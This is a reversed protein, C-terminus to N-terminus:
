VKEFSTTLVSRTNSDVHILIFSTAWHGWGQPTSPLEERISTLVYRLVSPHLILLDATTPDVNSARAWLAAVVGQSFYTRIEALREREEPTLVKLVHRARTFRDEGLWISPGTLGADGRVLADNQVVVLLDGGALGRQRTSRLKSLIDPLAYRPVPNKVVAGPTVYKRPRHEHYPKTVFWRLVSSKDVRLVRALDPASFHFITHM